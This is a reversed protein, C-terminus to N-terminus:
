TVPSKPSTGNDHERAFEWQSFRSDQGIESQLLDKYALLEKISRNGLNTFINRFDSASQIKLVIAGEAGPVDVHVVHWATVFDSDTPYLKKMDYKEPPGAANVPRVLHHRFDESHLDFETLHLDVGFYRKTLVYQPLELQLVGDAISLFWHAYTVCDVKLFIGEPNAFFTEMGGGWANSLQRKSLVQLASFKVDLVMPKWYSNSSKWDYKINEPGYDGDGDPYILSLFDGAGTGGTMMKGYGSWDHEDTGQTIMRLGAAESSLLIFALDRDVYKDIILSLSDDSPDRNNDFLATLEDIFQAAIIATGAWVMVTNPSFQHSKRVMRSVHVDSPSPAFSGRYGPLKGINGAGPEGPRSLLLDSILTVSPEDIVAAIM